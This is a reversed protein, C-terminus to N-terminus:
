CHQAHVLGSKGLAPYIRVLTNEVYRCMPGVPGTEAVLKNTRTPNSPTYALMDTLMFSTTYGRFGELSYM